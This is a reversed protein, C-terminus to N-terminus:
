PIILMARIIGRPPETLCREVKQYPYPVVAVCPAFDTGSSAFLVREKDVTFPGLYGPADVIASPVRIPTAQISGPYANLYVTAYKSGGVFIQGPFIEVSSVNFSLNKRVSVQTYPPHLEGLIHTPYVKHGVGTYLTNNKDIALADGAFRLPTYYYSSCSTYAPAACRWLTTGGAPTGGGVLYLDNGTDFAAANIETPKSSVTLSPGNTYPPDFIYVNPGTDLDFLRGTNDFLLM